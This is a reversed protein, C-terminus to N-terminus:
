LVAGGKADRIRELISPMGDIINRIKPLPIEKWKNETLAVLEDLTSPTCVSVADDLM